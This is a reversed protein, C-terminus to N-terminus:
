FTFMTKKRFNEQVIKLKPLIKEFTENKTARKETRKLVFNLLKEYGDNFRTGISFVQKSKLFYILLISPNRIDVWKLLDIMSTTKLKQNFMHFNTNPQSQIAVVTNDNNVVITNDNNIILDIFYPNKLFSDCGGRSCKGLIKYILNYFSEIKIHKLLFEFISEDTIEYPVNMMIKMMMMQEWSSIEENLVKNILEEFSPDNLEKTRKLDAIVYSESLNMFFNSM